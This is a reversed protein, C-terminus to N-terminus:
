RPLRLRRVYNKPPTVVDQTIMRHHTSRRQLTAVAINQTLGRSVNNMNLEVNVAARSQLAHGVTLPM